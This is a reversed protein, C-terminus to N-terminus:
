AAGLLQQKTNNIAYEQYGSLLGEILLNIQGYFTKAFWKKPKHKYSKLRGRSLGWAIRKIAISEAPMKGPHYGPVYKFKELGVKKVFEIMAEIPPQKTYVLSKMDKHRGHDEFFLYMSALTDGTAKQVQHDFSNLLSGSLELGKEQASKILTRRVSESWNGLQDNIFDQINEPTIDQPKFRSFPIGAAGM